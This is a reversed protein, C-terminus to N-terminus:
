ALVRGKEVKDLQTDKLDRKKNESYTFELDCRLCRLAEYKAQEESLTIEVEDLSVKRKSVDITPLKVRLPLEDSESDEVKLPEVYIEPLVKDLPKNLTENNLYREIMVAAKKGAAIAAIVTNPGSAVDGGAFVGPRNTELTDENIIL